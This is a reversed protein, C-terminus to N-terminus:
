IHILSLTEVSGTTRMTTVGNALYLRPASYTMPVFMAPRNYSNDPGLGPLALAFLHDHMGVIGPLVASGRLDLVTTGDSAAQDAGPLIAAIKGGEVILNRDRLPSGGTGDIIEVHELIVVPTAVKVYQRVAPALDEARQAAAPGALLAVCLLLGGWRACRSDPAVPAVPAVPAMPAMPALRRRLASGGLTVVNM